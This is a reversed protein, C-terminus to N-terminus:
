PFLFDFILFSIITWCVRARAAFALTQGVTLQPFHVDVEAQYICEGRFDKHMTEKPIGQYNLYSKQAVNLGDTEGAITKLLTSCGSDSDAMDEVWKSPAAAQRGPRGLVVLMEGSKVLGEFDRLIQIRTKRSQGFLRRALGILNFAYNGFTKQYDTPEGYGHVSLNKYAVGAVRDPYREPDRSEISMLTELWARSTFSGSRPDLLPNDSGFFPNVLKGTEDKVANHSIRRVLKAIKDNQKEDISSSGSISAASSETQDQGKVVDSAKEPLSDDQVALAATRRQLRRLAKQEAAVKKSDVPEDLIISKDKFYSPRGDEYVIELSSDDQFDRMQASVWEGDAMLAVSCHWPTTFGTKTNLLSM